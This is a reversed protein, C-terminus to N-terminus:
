KFLALHNHLQETTVRGPRGSLNLPLSERSAADVIQRHAELLGEQLSVYFICVCGRLLFVLRHILQQTSFM